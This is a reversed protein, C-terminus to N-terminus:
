TQPREMAKGRWDPPMLEIAYRLAVRPMRERRAVVFDLVERPWAKSTEKLLWGYGKRVLDDEDALLAKAVSFVRDLFLGRRGPPVFSVAAGRRLWRNPSDLWPLTRQALEPHRMLLPGICGTCLVDCHAWNGVRTALWREFTDFAAPKLRPVARSCWKSTLTPHEFVESQWLADGLALLDRPEVRRLERWRRAVIANLEKSRVGLPDISEKFFGRLGDRHAPDAYQALEARLSAMFTTPDLM